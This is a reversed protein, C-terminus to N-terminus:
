FKQTLREASGSSLAHYWAWTWQSQWISQSVSGQDESNVGGRLWLLSSVLCWSIGAWTSLGPLSPHSSASAIGGTRATGGTCFSPAHLALHAKTASHSPVTQSCFQNFAWCSWLLILCLSVSASKVAQLPAPAMSSLSLSRPIGFVDWVGSYLFFLCRDSLFQYLGM